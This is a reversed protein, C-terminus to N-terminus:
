NKYKALIKLILFKFFSDRKFPPAIRFPVNSAVVSYKYEWLLASRM